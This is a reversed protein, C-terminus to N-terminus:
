DKKAELGLYRQKSSDEAFLSVADGEM